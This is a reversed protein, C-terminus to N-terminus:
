EPKWQWYIGYKYNKKPYKISWHTEKRNDSFCVLQCSDDDHYKVKKGVGKEMNSEAFMLRNPIYDPPFIVSILLHRCSFPKIIEFFGDENVEESESDLLFESINEIVITEGIKKDFINKKMLDINEGNKKFSNDIPINDVKTSINHSQGYDSVRGLILTPNNRKLKLKGTKYVRVKEKSQIDFTVKLFTYQFDETSISNKLIAAYKDREIIIPIIGVMGILIGLIGFLSNTADM